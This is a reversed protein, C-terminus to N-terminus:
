LEREGRRWERLHNEDVPLLSLNLDIIIGAGNYAVMLENTLYDISPPEQYVGTSTRYHSLVVPQKLIEPNYSGIKMLELILQNWTLKTPFVVPRDSRQLSLKM